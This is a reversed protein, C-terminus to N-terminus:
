SGKAGERRIRAKIAALEAEVQADESREEGSIGAIQAAVDEEAIEAYAQAEAELEDITDTFRDYTGAQPSLLGSASAREVGRRARALRKRALLRARLQRTQGLKTELSALNQRLDELARNQAEWEEKMARAAEQQQLRRRLAERALSDKAREAAATARELLAEADQEAHRYSDNLKREDRIASSVGARAETLETEMTRILQDLAQEPDEAKRLIDRINAKVLSKVRELLGM